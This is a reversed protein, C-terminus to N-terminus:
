RTRSADYSDPDWSVYADWSTKSYDADFRAAQRAGPMLFAVLDGPEDSWTVTDLNRPQDRRHTGSQRRLPLSGPAGIFFIGLM